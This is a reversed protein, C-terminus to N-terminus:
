EPLNGLEYTQFYEHADSPVSKLIKTAMSLGHYDSITNTRWNPVDDIKALFKVRELREQIFDIKVKLPDTIKRQIVSGRAATEDLLEEIKDFERVFRGLINNLYLLHVPISDKVKNDIKFYLELIYIDLAEEFTIPKKIGIINKIQAGEIDFTRYLDRVEKLLRTQKKELNIRSELNIAIIKNTM